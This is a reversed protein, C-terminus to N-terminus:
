LGACRDHQFGAPEALDIALAREQSFHALYGGGVVTLDARTSASMPAHQRAAGADELWFVGHRSAHLSRQIVRRDPANREYATMSITM